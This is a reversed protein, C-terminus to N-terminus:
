KKQASLLTIIEDLKKVVEGNAKAADYAYMAGFAIANRVTDDSGKFRRTWSDNPTAGGYIEDNLEMDSDGLNWDSGDSEYRDNVSVHVHDHFEGDYDRWAWNANGNNNSFIRQKWIVYLLRKDRNESLVNALNDLDVNTVGNGKMFDGADVSGNSEPNHESYEVQHALDGRTGVTAGPYKAKWQAILRALGKDVYWAVM